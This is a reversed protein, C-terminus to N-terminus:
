LIVLDADGELTLDYDNLDIYSKLIICEGDALTLNASLVRQFAGGTGGGGGQAWGFRPDAFDNIGNPNRQIATQGEYLRIVAIPNESAAPINAVTLLEKVDVEAGEVVTVAGDDDYQLLAWIAGAAPQYASLDLTQNSLVGWSGDSKEFVGGFIQVTFESYPLVLFPLIRAAEVFDTDGGGYAHTQAHDPVAPSTDQDGFVDRAYLVQLVGPQSPDYGVAVQTFVKNPVRRNLVQRVAGTSTETVYVWGSAGTLVDSDSFPPKGLVGFFRVDIGKRDLAKKIIAAFRTFTPNM